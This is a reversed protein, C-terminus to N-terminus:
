PDTSRARSPDNWSPPMPRSPGGASAGSDDLAANAAVRYAWTSLSSRGDFRDLGRVFAICAEQTADQADLPDPCIRRCVAAMRDHHARLLEELASRDGSRAAVIVHWDEGPLPASRHRSPPASSPEDPM